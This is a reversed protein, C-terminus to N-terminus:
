IEYKEKKYYPLMHGSNNPLKGKLENLNSASINTPNNIKDCDVSILDKYCNVFIRKRSPTIVGFEFQKEWSFAQKTELKDGDFKKFYEKKDLMTLFYVDSYSKITKTNLYLIVVM